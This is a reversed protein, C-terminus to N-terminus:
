VWARQAAYPLRGRGKQAAVAVGQQGEEQQVLQHHACADFVSVTTFRLLHQEYDPVQMARLRPDAYRTSQFRCPMYVPSQVCPTSKTFTVLQQMGHQLWEQAQRYWM